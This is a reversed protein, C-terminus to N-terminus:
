ANNEPSRMSPNGLVKVIVYDMMNKLDWVSVSLVFRSTFYNYADLQEM